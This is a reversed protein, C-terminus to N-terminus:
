WVRSIYINRDSAWSKGPGSAAVTKQRAQLREKDRHRAAVLTLGSNKSSNILSDYTTITSTITLSGQVTLTHILRPPSWLTHKVLTFTMITVQTYTHAHVCLPASAWSKQLYPNDPSASRLMASASRVWWPDFWYPPPPPTTLTHPPHSPLQPYSLLPRLDCFFKTNRTLAHVLQLTSHHHQM